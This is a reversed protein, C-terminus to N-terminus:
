CVREMVELTYTEPDHKDHAGRHFATATVVQFGDAEALGRLTSQDAWDADDFVLTCREDLLGAVLRWFEAVAGASHDADYFVFGFGDGVGSLANRMDDNVFLFSRDAIFPGVNESFVDPSTSPCWEDGQHHDITVLECGVPLSQLLVATSLGLYHGVELARTALTAAALEGLVECERVSLPGPITDRLEAVNM